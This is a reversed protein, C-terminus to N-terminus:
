LTSQGRSLCSSVGFRSVSLYGVNPAVPPKDVLPQGRQSPAGDESSRPHPVSRWPQTVTNDNPPMVAQEAVMDELAHFMDAKLASMGGTATPPMAAEEAAMDELTDFMDPKLASM